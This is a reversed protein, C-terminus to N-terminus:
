YRDYNTEFYGDERTRNFHWFRYKPELVYRFKNASRCYIEMRGELFGFYEPFPGGPVHVNGDWNPQNWDANIFDERRCLFMQQSMRLTRRQPEGDNPSVIFCDTNKEMIEIASNVWNIPDKMWCDNDAFVIYDADSLSAGFLHNVTHVKYTHHKDTPSEYQQKELDINYSKLIQNIHIDDRIVPQIVDFITNFREYDAPQCKQHIAFVKDFNYRNSDVQHQLHGPWHLRHADGSYAFTIFDVSM